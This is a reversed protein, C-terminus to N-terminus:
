SCENSRLPSAAAPHSFARVRASAPLHRRKSFPAPSRVSCLRKRQTHTRASLCIRASGCCCCCCCILKWTRGHITTIPIKIPLRVVTADILHSKWGDSLFWFNATTPFCNAARTRLSKAFLNSLPDSKSKCRPLQTLSSKKKKDIKRLNEEFLCTRTAILCLRSNLESEMLFFLFFFCVSLVAFISDKSVGSRNWHLRCVSGVCTKGGSQKKEKTGGTWHYSDM